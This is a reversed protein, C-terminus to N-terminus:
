QTRAQAYLAPLGAGSNRLRDDVMRTVDLEKGSNLRIVPHGNPWVRWRSGKVNAIVVTGLYIGVENSLDVKGYHTEDSSWSDLREDLEHLSQPTDDLILERDGSWKRLGDCSLALDEFRDPDRNDPNSFVAVGRAPGYKHGLWRRGFRIRKV